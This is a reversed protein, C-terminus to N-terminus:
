LIAKAQAEYAARVQRIFEYVDRTDILTDVLLALPPLPPSSTLVKYVRDSVDIVFSFEREPESSDVNCYRVLLQDKEIGEVVCSLRQECASLEPSVYSSQLNLTSREKNKERRLNTTIVRYQEMESEISSCRERLSALQRKFGAVSLEADKREQKERELDAVLEIEKLKCQVTEAEVARTKEQFKKSEGAQNARRASITAVARNKYNAVAKLFNRTSSEYAELRLDVQANPEALVAVLDIQPLRLVHTM